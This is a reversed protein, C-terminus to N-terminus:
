PELIRYSFSPLGQVRTVFTRKHLQPIVLVCDPNQPPPSSSLFMISVPFSQVPIHPSRQKQSLDRLALSAQATVDHVTTHKLLLKLKEGASM